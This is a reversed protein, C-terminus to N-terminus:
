GGAKRQHRRAPLVTQAARGVLRDVAAAAAAADEAQRGPVRGQRRQQLAGAVAGGQDALPMQAVRRVEARQARAVAAEEARHRAPHVVEAVAVAAARVVQPHALVLVVLVAVQGVQDGVAGHVPQALRRRGCRLAILGEQQAQVVGCRVPGPLRAIVRGQGLLDLVLQEVQVAAADVAVLAHDPLHVLADAPHHGRQALGADLAVGQHDEGTVVAALAETVVPRQHAALHVQGFAADPHGPDGM